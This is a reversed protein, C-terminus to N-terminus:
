KVRASRPPPSSLRAVEGGSLANGAVGARPPSLPQTRPPQARLAWHTHRPTNPAGQPNHRRLDRVIPRSHPHTNWIPPIGLDRSVSQTQSRLAVSCGAMANGNQGGEPDLAGSAGSTTPEM